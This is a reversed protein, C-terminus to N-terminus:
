TLLVDNVKEDEFENISWRFMKFMADDDASTRRPTRVRINEVAEKQQLMWIGILELHRSDLSPKSM